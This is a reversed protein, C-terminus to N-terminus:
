WGSTPTDTPGLGAGLWLRAPLVQSVPLLPRTLAEGRLECADHQLAVPRLSMSWTREAPSGGATYVGWSPTCGAGRCSM